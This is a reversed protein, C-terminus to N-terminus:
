YRNLQVLNEKWFQEDHTRWAHLGFPIEQGNLRMLARPDLEISFMSAVRVNPVRLTKSISGLLSFFLDEPWQNKIWQMRTVPFEDFLEYVASIRRLSLGGNGVFARLSFLQDDDIDEIKLQMEWGKPWPAGIYDYLAATWFDLSKRLIIADLQYILLFEYTNFRSYFEKSLLLESYSSVSIFYDPSFRECRELLFEKRYFAIDLNSPAILVVDSNLNSLSIRLNFIEDASPIKKYIPIVTVCRQKNM